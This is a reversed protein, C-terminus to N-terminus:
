NRVLACELTIQPLFVHYSISHPPWWVVGRLSCSFSGECYAIPIGCAREGGMSNTLVKLVAFSSLRVLTIQLSPDLQYTTPLRRVLSILLKRVITVFFQHFTRTILETFAHITQTMREEIPEISLNYILRSQVLRCWPMLLWNTRFTESGPEFKLSNM